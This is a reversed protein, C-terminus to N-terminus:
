KKIITMSLGGINETIVREQPNQPVAGTTFVYTSKSCAELPGAQNGAICSATAGCWGCGSQHLCDKQSVYMRCQVQFNNLKESGDYYNTLSPVEDAHEKNKPTYDYPSSRKILRDVIQPIKYNNENKL